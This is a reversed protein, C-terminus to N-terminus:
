HPVLFEGLIFVLVFLGPLLTLRVLWSREHLRTIAILGVVGGALGCLMMAIGYFPLIIHRWAADGSSPMFVTANIIFLVLFTASLAVSWWGLRTEPRKLFRHRSPQGPTPGNESLNMNTKM